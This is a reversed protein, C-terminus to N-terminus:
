HNTLYEQIESILYDVINTLENSSMNSREVLALDLANQFFGLRLSSFTGILKNMIEKRENSDIDNYKEAIKIKAIVKVCLWVAYELCNAQCLKFEYINFAETYTEIDLDTRTFGFTFDESFEGQDNKIIYYGNYERTYSNIQEVTANPIAVIDYRM